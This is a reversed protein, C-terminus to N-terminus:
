SDSGSRNTPLPPFISSESVNGVVIRKGGCGEISKGWLIDLRIRYTFGLKGNMFRTIIEGPLLQDPAYHDPQNVKVKWLVRWGVEYMAIDV